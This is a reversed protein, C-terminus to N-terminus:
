GLLHLPLSHNLVQGRSTFGSIRWRNVIFRLLWTLTHVETWDSACDTFGTFVGSSKNWGIVLLIFFIWASLWQMVVFEKPFFTRLNFIKKPYIHARKNCYQQLIFKLLFFFFHKEKITNVPLWLDQGTIHSLTSPQFRWPVLRRSTPCKTSRWGTRMTEWRALRVAVVCLVENELLTLLYFHKWARKEM